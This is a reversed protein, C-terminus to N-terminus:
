KINLYNVQKSYLKNENSKFFISFLNTCNKFFIIDLSIWWNM